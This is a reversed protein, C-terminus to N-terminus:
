YVLSTNSARWVLVNRSTRTPMHLKFIQGILFRYISSHSLLYFFKIIFNLKSLPLHTSVIYALIYMSRACILRIFDFHKIVQSWCTTFTWILKNPLKTKIYFGFRQILNYVCNQSSNMFTCLTYVLKSHLIVIHVTYLISSLATCPKNWM